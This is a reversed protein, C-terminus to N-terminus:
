VILSIIISKLAIKILQTRTTKTLLRYSLKLSSLATLHFLTLDYRCDNFLMRPHISYTGYGIKQQNSSLIPSFIRSGIIPTEGNVKKQYYGWDSDKMPTKIDQPYPSFLNNYNTEQKTRADDSQTYGKVPSLLTDSFKFTGEM